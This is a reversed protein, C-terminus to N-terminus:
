LAEWVPQCSRPIPAIEGLKRWPMDVGHFDSGGSALLDFENCLRTLYRTQDDNQGAGIVEIGRGGCAVFDSLLLKLKTNTMKYKLPHAVVAVGGGETIWSVAEELSPWANKVDGCKGAGLWRDFAKKRSAVLGQDVLYQAFHPRGVRWAQQDCYALAGQHAGAIGKKALKEGIEFGRLERAQRQRAEAAEIVRSLPDFGLGIIHISINKWVCSFEVGSILKIDPSQALCQRYGATTDHDTIALLEIGNEMALSLLEAPKLDGDSATTHCHLDFKM